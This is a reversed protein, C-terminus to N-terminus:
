GELRLRRVVFQRDLAALFPGLRPGQDEDLFLRYGATFFDGV